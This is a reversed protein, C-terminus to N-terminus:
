FDGIVTYTDREWSKPSKRRNIKNVTNEIRKAQPEEEEIGIIWLNSRKLTDCLEEM